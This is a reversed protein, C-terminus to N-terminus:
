KHTDELNKFRHQGWVAFLKCFQIGHNWEERAPCSWVLWNWPAKPARRLDYPVDSILPQFPANEASCCSLPGRRQSTSSTWACTLRLCSQRLMQNRPAFRAMLGFLCLMASYFKSVQTTCMNEIQHLESEQSVVHKPWDRIKSEAQWLCCTTQLTVIRLLPGNIGCQRCKHVRLSFARAAALAKLKGVAWPSSLGLTWLCSKKTVAKNSHFYPQAISGHQRISM